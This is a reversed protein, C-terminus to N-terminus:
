WKIFRLLMGRNKNQIFAWQEASSSLGMLDEYNQITYFQDHAEIVQGKVWMKKNQTMSDNGLHLSGDPYVKYDKNIILESARFIDVLKDLDEQNVMNESLGSIWEELIRPDSISDQLSPMDGLDNVSYRLVGTTMVERLVSHVKRVTKTAQNRKKQFLSVMKAAVFNTNLEISQNEADGKVIVLPAEKDHEIQFFEPSKKDGPTYGPMTYANRNTNKLIKDVFESNIMNDLFEAPTMKGYRKGFYRTTVGDYSIIGKIKYLSDPDLFPNLIAPGSPTEQMVPIQINSELAM